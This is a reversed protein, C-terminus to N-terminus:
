QCDSPTGYTWTSWTPQSNYYSLADLQCPTLPLAGNAMPGGSYITGPHTFGLVHTLEHRTVNYLTDLAEEYTRDHDNYLIRSWWIEVVYHHCLDFNGSTTDNICTTFGLLCETAPNDDLCSAPLTETSPRVSIAVRVEGLPLTPHTPADPVFRTVAIEHDLTAIGLTVEDWTDNDVGTNYMYWHFKSRGAPIIDTSGDEIGWGSGSPARGGWALTLFAISLLAIFKKM